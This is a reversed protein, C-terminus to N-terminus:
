APPEQWPTGGEERLLAVIRAYSEALALHSDRVREDKALEAREREERERAAYYNIEDM